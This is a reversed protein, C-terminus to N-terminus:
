LVEKKQSGQGIGAEVSKGHEWVERVPKPFKIGDRLIKRFIGNGYKM